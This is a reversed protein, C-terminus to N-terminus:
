TTGIDFRVGDLYGVLGDAGYRLAYWGDEILMTQAVLWSMTGANLCRTCYEAFTVKQNIRKPETM